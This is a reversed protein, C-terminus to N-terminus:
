ARKELALDVATEPKRPWFWITLAIGVPITGWVVAWPTFVSGVFLATAALAGIFPWLTPIPFFERADPRADLVTTVLVERSETSLGSVGGSVGGAEWLPERGRVVPVAAFNYAAPPSETAWELTGGGWPDAGAAAGHRRSRAVNVIFLLVSIAIMVGGATALLNMSGWGMSADYSYVRRPMGHLGLLHMPFFTVNFGIFFLWFQWRGLTEGLM